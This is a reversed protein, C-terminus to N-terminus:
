AEPEPTPDYGIAEWIEQEVADITEETAAKAKSQLEWGALKAAGTHRALNDMLSQMNAADLYFVEKEPEFGGDIARYGRCPISSM